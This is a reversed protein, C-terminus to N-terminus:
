LSKNPMPSCNTASEFISVIADKGLQKDFVWMTLPAKGSQIRQRHVNFKEINITIQINAEINESLSPVIAFYGLLEHERLNDAFLAAFDSPIVRLSRDTPTRRLLWSGILCIVIGLLAGLLLSTM